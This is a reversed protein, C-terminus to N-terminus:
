SMEGPQTPAFGSSRHDYDSTPLDFKRAPSGATPGTAKATWFEPEPMAMAPYSGEPAYSWYFVYRARHTGADFRALGQGLLQQLAPAYRMLNENGERITLQVLHSDKEGDAAPTVTKLAIWTVPIGNKQLTDRLVTRVLERRTAMQQADSEAVSDPPLTSPGERTTKRSKGFGLFEFM